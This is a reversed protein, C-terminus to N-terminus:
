DRLLSRRVISPRALKGARADASTQHPYPVTADYEADSIEWRYYEFDGGVLKWVVAGRVPLEIGHMRRWESASVFWEELRADKGSGMFRKASLSAFRGQDDFAFVGSATVGRYTM